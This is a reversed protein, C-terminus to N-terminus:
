GGVGRVTELVVCGGGGEGVLQNQPQSQEDCRAGLCGDVGLSQQERRRASERERWGGWWWRRAEAKSGAEDHSM